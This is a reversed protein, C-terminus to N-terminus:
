IITLTKLKNAWFLNSRFLYSNQGVNKKDSLELVPCLVTWNEDTQSIMEKNEQAFM